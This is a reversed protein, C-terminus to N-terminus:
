TTIRRGVRGTSRSYVWYRRDVALDAASPVNGLAAVTVLPLAAVAALPHDAPEPDDPTASADKLAILMGVSVAASSLTAVKDGTAAGSALLQFAGGITILSAAPKSWDADGGTGMGSPATWTGTNPAAGFFVLMDELYNPDVGPAAVNVSSSSNYGKSKVDVPTTTDVGSFEATISSWRGSATSGFSWTPPDGSNTLHWYVSLYDDTTGIQQEDIPTWGAPVSNVPGAATAIGCLAIRGNTTGTRNAVPAASNSTNSLATTFAIAM